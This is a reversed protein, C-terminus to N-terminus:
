LSLLYYNSHKPVFRTYLRIRIETAPEHMLDRFRFSSFRMIDKLFFTKNFFYFNDTQEYQRNTSNWNQALVKIRGGSALPCQIKQFPVSAWPSVSPLFEFCNPSFWEFYIFCPENITTRPFKSLSTIITDM